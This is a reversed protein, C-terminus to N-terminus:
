FIFDFAEAPYGGVLTVAFSDEESLMRDCVKPEVWWCNAPIDHDGKPGEVMERAWQNSCLLGPRGDDRSGIFAMCHPWRGRASAFGAADRRTRGGPGNEFGVSSCVAVGHGAAILDRAEEYTRVPVWDAKHRAAEPEHADPLGSYGWARARAPDYAGMLRRSLHGYRKLAEAAWMGVSGDGRIRGQGIEVRSLAYVVETCARDEWDYREPKGALVQMVGALDYVRSAGWSVCDGIRQPGDDFDRGWARRFAEYLLATKGVGYGALDPAASRVGPAALTAVLRESEAENKVWGCLNASM